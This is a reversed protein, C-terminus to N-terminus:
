LQSSISYSVQFLVVYRQIIHSMSGEETVSASKLQTENTQKNQM